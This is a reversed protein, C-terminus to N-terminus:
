IKMKKSNQKKKRILAKEDLKSLAEHLRENIISNIDKKTNGLLTEISNINLNDNLSLVQSDITETYDSYVKLLNILSLDNIEALNERGWENQELPPDFHEEPEIAPPQNIKKM